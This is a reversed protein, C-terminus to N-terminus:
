WRINASLNYARGELPGWVQKFSPNATPPLVISEKKTQRYDFLDECNLVFSINKIDYRVMASSFFYGPTRSGNELFQKGIYSAEVCARLRSSFENSLVAAFKNRVSLPLNPQATNYLQRAVAYTYGMYIDLEDFKLQVYTEFGKTDIPKGANYFYIGGSPLKGEVVPQLISTFYFMQNIAIRWNDFSKKYNIDWNVGASREARIGILRFPIIKPYDREDIDADFQSPIKYGLGGGLRTTFNKNIRYLLSLRPLAFNGHATNNDLRFGAQTTLKSSIKWDDQIFFGTTNYHYPDLMTSDPYQKDFKEGSINLGAVLDHGAMKKYYSLETYYSRQDAKMGFVNTRIDRNFFSLNGKLTLRDTKNMRNEWVADLTNRISRNQIYFQHESDNTHHLVQMDGGKRDETTLHYGLMITQLKNPYLFIRPHFFFNKLDPVDSFGDTNVDVARQLNTGAFFTYGAKNGRNSFYTNINTENLTSRNLLISHQPKHLQPSKSILNIMGAIAGGGYLTSSSGKIIEVQKLDLPPIQLISFSGSYGGFLPLGDRLLQTYKGPLGQVRMDINGTTASSRQNQIGAVDGLLSAINGPITGAEEDVEESGIVEVKTPLDEIRSDTRSSSVIVSEETKETARQLFIVVSRDPLPIKIHITRSQYGVHSFRIQLSGATLNGFFIKGTSDSAVTKNIGPLTANVGRLLDGNVTDKLIIRVNYQPWGTYSCLIYAIFLLFKKM